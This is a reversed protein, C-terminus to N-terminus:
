NKIFKLMYTGQSLSLKLFYVNAPLASVDFRGNQLDPTYCRGLMDTFAYREVPESTSIQLYDGAPNPYIRIFSGKKDDVSLLSCAVGSRPYSCVTEWAIEQMKAAMASAPVQFPTGWEDYTQLPLGVPSQKYICAFHVLAVFYFGIDNPHIDDVFLDNRFSSMGPVAGASISDSLNALAQAVPIIYVPNAFPHLANLSDQVSEWTKLDNRVRPEWLLSDSFDDACGLPTGTELCNWGEYLYTQIGPNASLALSHFSDTYAYFEPLINDWTSGEIMVFVDYNGSGLEVKSDITGAQYGQCTASHDWHWFLPAGNIIGIEYSHNIGATSDCFSQLMSPMYPSVLSHGLHFVQHSQAVANQGTIWCAIIILLSIRM